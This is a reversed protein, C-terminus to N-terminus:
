PYLTSDLENNVTERISALEEENFSSLNFDVANGDEDIFYVEVIEGSKDYCIEFLEEGQHQAPRTWDLQFLQQQKKKQAYMKTQNGRCAAKSLHKRNDRHIGAKTAGNIILVMAYDRTKIHRSM